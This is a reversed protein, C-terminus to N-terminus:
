HRIGQAHRAAAGAKGKASQSEQTKKQKEIVEDCRDHHLMGNIEKFFETAVRRVAAREVNDQAATIRFLTAEDADIPGRNEYYAELLRRYAESQCFSLHKTKTRYDAAYWPFWPKSSM